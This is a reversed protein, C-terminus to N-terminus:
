RISSRCHAGAMVMLSIASASEGTGASRRRDNRPEDIPEGSLSRSLPGARAARHCLHDTGGARMGSRYGRPGEAGVVSLCAAGPSPPSSPRSRTSGRAPPRRSTSPGARIVPSGPASKPIAQPRRLQRPHCESKWGGYREPEVTGERHWRHMLKIVFSVSVEFRRAAARRLLGGEVARVVRERLNVSYPQTGDM